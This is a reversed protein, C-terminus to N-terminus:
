DVVGLELDVDVVEELPADAPLRGPPAVESGPSLRASPGEKADLEVVHPAVDGARHSLDEFEEADRRLLRVAGELLADLPGDVLEDAVEVVDGLGELLRGPSVVGREAGADVGGVPPRDGAADRGEEVERLVGSQPGGEHGTSTRTAARLPAVPCAEPGAGSRHRLLDAGTCM